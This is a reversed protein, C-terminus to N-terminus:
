LFLSLSLEVFIYIAEFNLNHKTISTTVMQYEKYQCLITKSLFRIANMQPPFNIYKNNFYFSCHTVKLASFHKLLQLNDENAFGIQLECDRESKFQASKFPPFVSKQTKETYIM